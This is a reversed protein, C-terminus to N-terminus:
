TISLLYIGGHKEIHRSKKYGTRKGNNPDIGAKMESAQLLVV